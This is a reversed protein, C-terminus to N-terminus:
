SYWANICWNIGNRICALPNNMFVSVWSNNNHAITQQNAPENSFIQSMKQEIESLANNASKIAYETKIHTGNNFFVFAPVRDISYKKTFEPGNNFDLEIFTVQQHAPRNFLDDLQKKLQICIGCWSGSVIILTPGKSYALFTDLEQQNHATRVTATVNYQYAMILMIISMKRM